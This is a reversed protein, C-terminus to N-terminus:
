VRAKEVLVNRVVVIAPVPPAFISSSSPVEARFLDFKGIPPNAAANFEDLRRAFSNVGLDRLPWQSLAEWEERTM